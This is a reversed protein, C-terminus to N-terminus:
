GTQPEKFQIAFQEIFCNPLSPIIKPNSDQIDPLIYNTVLYNQINNALNLANKNIFDALNPDFKSIRKTAIKIKEQVTLQPDGLDIPGFKNVQPQEWYDFMQVSVIKSRAADTYCVVADGGNGIVKVGALSYSSVALVLLLVTKIQNKM